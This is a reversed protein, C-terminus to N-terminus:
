GEAREGRNWRRLRPALLSAAVLQFPHYILMPLVILGLSRDKGFVILLLPLGMAASKQTGCILAATRRGRTFGWPKWGSAYYAMALALVHLLAVVPVALALHWPTADFGRAFGTCMVVWVLILLLWLSAKGLGPRLRETLAPAVAQFAQGILIPVLVQLVLRGMVPLLPLSVSRGTGMLIICPSVAVGLFSGLAANFLAGAEDGGATRTLVAATTTTTSLAGLFFVGLCLARDMRLAAMLLAAGWFLCPLFALSFGQTFLHLRWDGLSSRVERTRMVLGSVLFLVSAISGNWAGTRLPGDPAGLAPMWAAFGMVGALAALFGYRKFLIM